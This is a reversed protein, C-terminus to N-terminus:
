VVGEDVVGSAFPLHKNQAQEIMYESHMKNLEAKMNNVDDTNEVWSLVTEYTLEEFPIIIEQPLGLVINKGISFQLDDEVFKAVVVVYINTVIDTTDGPEVIVRDFAFTYEVM